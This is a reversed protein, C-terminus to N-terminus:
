TSLGAVAAELAAIEELMVPKRALKELQEPEPSALSGDALKKELTEIDRLKKRLNRLKKAPDIALSDEHHNVQSLDFQDFNDKNVAQTSPTQNPNQANSTKNKKKKNSKKSAASDSTLSDVMSSSDNHLGPIKPKSSGLLAKHDFTDIKM